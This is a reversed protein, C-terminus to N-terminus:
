LSDRLKRYENLEEETFDNELCPLDYHTSQTRANPLFDSVRCFYNYEVLNGQRLENIVREFDRLCDYSIKVFKHRQYPNIFEAPIPKQIMECLANTAACGYCIGNLDVDGYTDMNINVWKKELGKIMVDLIDKFTMNKIREEM